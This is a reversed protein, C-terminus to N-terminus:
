QVLFEGRFETDVYRVIETRLLDLVRLPAKPGRGGWREIESFAHAAQRGFHLRRGDSRQTTSQVASRAPWGGEGERRGVKVM